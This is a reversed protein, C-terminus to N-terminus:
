PAVEVPQKLAAAGHRLQWHSVCLKEASVDVGGVATVIKRGCRGADGADSPRVLAYGEFPAVCGTATAREETM